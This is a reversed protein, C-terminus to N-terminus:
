FQIMLAELVISNSEDQSAELPTKGELLIFPLNTWRELVVHDKMERNMAEYQEREIDQPLHWNWTLARELISFEGVVNRAPDGALEDAFTSKILELAEEEQSESVVLEIRAARDTQKGYVLLDGIASPVNDLNLSAAEKVEDKDLVAYAFRPPPGGDATQMRSTDHAILQSSAIAAENARDLENLEFELSVFNENAAIEQRGM